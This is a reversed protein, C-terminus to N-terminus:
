EELGLAQRMLLNQEFQHSAKSGTAPSASEPRYVGDLRFRGAVGRLHRLLFGWAGMNAPEEQVWVLECDDAYVSLTENLEVDPLPYVQEIRIIAVHDIQAEARAALLEFYVKGSCLLIRKVKSADAEKDAIVKEFQGGALEELSSIAQPHRLLSKPTMVVLPKRIKRMVQRRLAHFLQAPTTLNMVMINDEAALTLFRELCASSHEPGQGEFGHLLLLVVGSLRNWKDESSTIFQDIIVQAGNAFDGFQAEWVVLSEPMELSYGYEYALVSTESLPSNWIGCKGQDAQLNQLPIFRRGDQADHWEAHRHAFTGRGSDQGSVRMGAGEVLLSAFALCEAGGWDLAREGSAMARRQKHLRNLKPNINFDDPVELQKLMLSKLMDVGVSTDVEPTARDKGGSFLAMARGSDADYVEFGLDAVLCGEEVEVIEECTGLDEPADGGSRAVELCEELRARSAVAVQKADEDSMQGLKILNQLYHERVTARQRINAYMLPQTFSPDDGENHGYKRFCYMDIIVDRRWKSRFACALNIVHGVADPDEGNVHFIPIDLMKAVDTAYMSTRSEDPDTTFGVQNNVIIHITGGTEYGTLGSMNLTEQVVGQGAFAADGHIVIGAVQQRALDGIRDQRARVRGCVVPAVFELHSPNFCLSLHTRHGEANVRISSFGLHYKVDGRGVLEEPDGDDEFEAFVKAPSKGMINAMVNLRGRHAMGIIAHRVGHRALGELAMDLLPILTEGGELSFRKAGLYKKHIFDEFTEADTLKRFIRLQEEHSMRRRNQTAEMRTYLWNKVEPNDIHMFQVGVSGCYTKKLQEVLHRLRQDRDSHFYTRTSFALDLDAESLGHHELTLEPHEEVSHGLPNINAVAHGRVRYSRILLDVREQRANTERLRQTVTHFLGRAIAGHEDLLRYLDHNALKFLSCDRVAQADASRPQNDMVSLEGLVEGDNLSAVHDGGRIIKVEGREIIYVADGDSGAQFITEGAPVRVEELLSAILLLAQEPLQAFIQLRYLFPLRRQMAADVPVAAPAENWVPRAEGNGFSPGSGAFISRPAFTPGFSSASDDQAFFARWAEPVSEPDALYQAHLSEVYPLSGAGLSDFISQSM